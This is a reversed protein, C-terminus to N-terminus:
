DKYFCGKRDKDNKIMWEIRGVTKSLVGTKLDISALFDVSPKLM